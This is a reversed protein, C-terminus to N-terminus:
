AGSFRLKPVRSISVSPLCSLPSTRNVYSGLPKTYASSKGSADSVDIAYGSCLLRSTAACGAGCDRIGLEHTLPPGPRSAEREVQDCKGLRYRRSGRSLGCIYTTHDSGTSVITTTKIIGSRLPISKAVTLLVIILDNAAKPISATKPAETIANGANAGLASALSPSASAFDSRSATRTGEASNSWASKAPSRWATNAYWCNPRLPQRLAGRSPGDSTRRVGLSCCDPIIISSTWILRM